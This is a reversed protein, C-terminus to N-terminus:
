PAPQASSTKATVVATGSTFASCRARVAAFGAVNMQFIGAATATSAFNRTSGANAGNAIASWAFWNTGDVTAEFTLTATFTGTIGWAM